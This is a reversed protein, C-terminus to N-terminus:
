VIVTEEGLYDEPSFWEEAEWSLVFAVYKKHDTIVNETPRTIGSETAHTHQQINHNNTTM